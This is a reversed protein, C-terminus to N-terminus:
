CTVSIILATFANLHWNTNDFDQRIFFDRDINKNGVISLKFMLLLFKVAVDYKFTISLSISTKKKNIQLNQLIPVM